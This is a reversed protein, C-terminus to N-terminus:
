EAVLDGPKWSQGFFSELPCVFRLLAFWGIGPSTRVWHADLDAPREPGFCVEVGDRIPSEEGAHEDIAFKLEMRVLPWTRGDCAAITFCRGVPVQGPLRLRYAQAGDLLARRDDQMSWLYCSDFSTFAWEWRRDVYALRTSDCRMFMPASAQVAHRGGLALKRNAASTFMGISGNTNM